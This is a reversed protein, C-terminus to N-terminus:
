SLLDLSDQSFIVVDIHDHGDRVGGTDRSQLTGIDQIARVALAEDLVSVDRSSEDHRNLRGGEVVRVRSSKYPCSILRFVTLNFNFVIRASNSDLTTSITSSLM